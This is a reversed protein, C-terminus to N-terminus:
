VIRAGLPEGRVSVINYGYKDCLQKPAQESCVMVIGGKDGGVAGAGCIKAAAGTNEVESIFERM